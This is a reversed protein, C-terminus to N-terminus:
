VTGTQTGGWTKNPNQSFHRKGGAFRSSMGYRWFQALVTSVPSKEIFDIVPV